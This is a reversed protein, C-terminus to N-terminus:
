PGLGLKRMQNVSPVTDDAVSWAAIVRAAHKRASDRDGSRLARRAARVDALDAGNFRGGVAEADLKTALEFQSEHDFSLAMAHRLADTARGGDKLLPRWAKAAGAHDGNVYREAGALLPAVSAGPFGLGRAHLARL